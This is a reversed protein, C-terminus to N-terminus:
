EAKIAENKYIFKVAGDEAAGLTDICKYDASVQKLAKLRDKLETLDGSVLDELKLVLEDNILTLGDNLAKAGDRLQALGEDLEKEGSELTGLGECLDNAGSSLQETGAALTKAGNNLQELGEKLSKTGEYLQGAGGKASEVGATYNKIGQYFTNYDDLSKKVQSIQAAGAEIQAKGEAIQVQVEDSAMNQAILQEIQEETKAAVIQKMKDSAMMETSAGTQAQVAAYVQSEIANRNAEVAAKVKAKALTEPDTKELEAVAQELVNAYNDVTLAPVKVGADNLGKTASSLLSEFVKEAGGTLADNNATLTDLGTYLKSTGELLQSSGSYADGLGSAIQVAGTNVAAAGDSLQKSGEHALAAGETLAASGDKASILGDYLQSSGDVLQSFADKATDIANTVTGELGDEDIAFEDFEYNTVLTYVTGLEFNNVDAEIVLSEPINVKDNITESNGLSESLGPFVVGVIAQRSGDDILRGGLVSINSFTDNKLIMGTVAVFPVYIKEDKGNISVTEFQNNTYDYSITVHGSKGALDSASVDNGDLKYTVKINVPTEGNLQKQTVTDTGAENDKLKDVVIMKEEEGNNNNIVYVTEDQYLKTEYDKKQVFDLVNTKEENQDNEAKVYYTAGAATIMCVSLVVAMTKLLNKKM